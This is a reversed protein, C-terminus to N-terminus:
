LQSLIDIAQQRPSCIAELPKAKDKWNMDLDVHEPVKEWEFCQVFAGVALMITRLGLGAGPCARRGMGFPVFKYGEKEMDMALFREPRFKEPEDWVNPDRHTWFANVLLITNKPITYGEVVCDESSYHPLIVPVPPYLRLAENAVSRLYPLNPLDSDSILREHGVNGDIEQILNCLANPNSLLLSMASEITVASTETGAIIM